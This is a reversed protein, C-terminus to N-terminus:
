GFPRGEMYVEEFWRDTESKPEQASSPEEKMPTLEDEWRAQNLWTSPNPIYQGGDKTWQVSKKAVEVANIMRLTLEESPRLRAWIKRADGKGVKKPYVKWFREFREIYIDTQSKREEKEKKEEEGSGIKKNDIDIDKNENINENEVRSSENQNGKQNVLDFGNPKEEFVMQNEKPKLPPRGGLRGNIKLQERYQRRKQIEYELRVNYFLGNEDREFHKLVYESVNGLSSMQRETLHGRQHQFCLLTIYQGREEMTLESVGVLFDASYLPFAPDKNKYEM